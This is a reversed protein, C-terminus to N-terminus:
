SVGGGYWSGQVKVVGPHNLFCTPCANEKVAKAEYSLTLVKSQCEQIKSLTCLM